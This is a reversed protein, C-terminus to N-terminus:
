APARSKAEKHTQDVGFWVAESLRRLDCRNVDQSEIMPYEPVVLGFDNPRMGPAELSAYARWFRSWADPQEGSAASREYSIEPLIRMRMRPVRGAAEKIADVAKARHPLLSLILFGAELAKRDPATKTPKMSAGLNLTQLNFWASEGRAITEARATEARARANILRSGIRLDKAWSPVLGWRLRAIRRAGDRGLRCVAFDQTPAGNWRPRMNDPPADLLLRYLDHIERWTLKQTFRGCM